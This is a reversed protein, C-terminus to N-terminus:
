VVRTNAVSTTVSSVSVTGSPPPVKTSGGTVDWPNGTAVVNRYTLIRAYVHDGPDAVTPSPMATSTARAWFVTLRTGNVGVGVAQPSNAVPAFGAPTSLTVPEAGVSEVFLLAVDHIAHAPWAPTVAGTGNVAGGAAQFTPAAAPFASLTRTAAARFTIVQAQAAGAALLLALTLGYLRSLSM